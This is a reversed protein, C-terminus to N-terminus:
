IKRGFKLWCYIPYHDSAKIKKDVHCAYPKIDKSCFIHDIRVYMHNQNYSWGIGNATAAYCDTLGRGITTHAYGLPNENFDGCVIVRQRSGHLAIYRAVADAQPGRKRSAIALKDILRTSETRASDEDLKGKILSKFGTKDEVDLGNSELHNNVVLVNQGNVDLYFAVSVNGKSAYPIEEFRKIPFRSYVAVMDGTKTERKKEQIYPYHAKFTSDIPLAHGAEQVCVIDANSHLIYQAVPSESFTKFSDAKMNGFGETNYSLLKIAGIPPDEPINVPMYTRTPGYCILYGLFPIIVGKFKFIVWFVLFLFNILLFAPYVLTVNAIAPHSAPNIHGSYGVLLMLVITAINAGAVVQLTFKKLKNIM